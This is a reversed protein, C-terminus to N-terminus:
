IDMVDPEAKKDGQYILKSEAETEINSEPNASRLIDLTRVEPTVKKGTIEDEIEGPHEEEYEKRLYKRKHPITLALIAGITFFFAGVLFSFQRGDVRDGEFREPPIAALFVLRSFNIIMRDMAVVYGQVAYEPSFVYEMKLEFVAVSWMMFFAVAVLVLFGVAWDTPETDIMLFIAVLM